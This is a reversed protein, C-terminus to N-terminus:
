VACLSMCSCTSSSSRRTRPQRVLPATFFQNTMTERRILNLVENSPLSFPFVLPTSEQGEEQLDKRRPDCKLIVIKLFFVLSFMYNQSLMVGV